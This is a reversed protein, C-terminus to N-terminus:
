EASVESFEADEIAAPLALVPSASPLDKTGNPPQMQILNITVNPAPTPQPTPAEEKKEATDKKEEPASAPKAEETKVKAHDKSSTPFLTQQKEDSLDRGQLTKKVLEATKEFLEEVIDYDMPDQVLAISLM